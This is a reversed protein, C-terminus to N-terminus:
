FQKISGLSPIEELSLVNYTGTWSQEFIAVMFTKLPDSGCGCNAQTSLVGDVYCGQIHFRYNIGAVVQQKVSIFKSACILRQIGSAYNDLNNSAHYYANKASDSISVTCYGGPM